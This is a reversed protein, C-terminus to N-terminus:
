RLLARKNNHFTRIVVPRPNHFIRTDVLSTPFCWHRPSHHVTLSPYNTSSPHSKANSCHHHRQRLYIELIQFRLTHLSLIPVARKRQCHFGHLAYHSTRACRLVKQQHDLDDQEIDFLLTSAITDESDDDGFEQNTLDDQYM